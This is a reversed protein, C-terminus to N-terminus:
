CEQESMWKPQRAGYVNASSATPRIKATAKRYGGLSLENMSEKVSCISVFRLYNDVHWAKNAPLSSVIIFFFFHYELRMFNM